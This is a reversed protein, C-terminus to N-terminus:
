VTNSENEEEKFTAVLMAVSGSATLQMAIYRNNCADCKKEYIPSAGAVPFQYTFYHIEKCKRTPCTWYIQSDSLNTAYVVRGTIKKKAM